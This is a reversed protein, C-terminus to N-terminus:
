FELCLHAFVDVENDYSMSKLSRVNWIYNHSYKLSLVILFFIKSSDSVEYGSCTAGFM